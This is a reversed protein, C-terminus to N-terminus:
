IRSYLPVTKWVSHVQLISKDTNRTFDNSNLDTMGSPDASFKQTFSTYIVEANQQASAGHLTGYIRFIKYSDWWDYAGAIRNYEWMEYFKCNRPNYLEGQELTALLNNRNSDLQESPEETWYSSIITTLGGPGITVCATISYYHHFHIQRRNRVFSQQFVCVLVVCTIVSVTPV